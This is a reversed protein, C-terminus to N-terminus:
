QTSSLYNKPFFQQLLFHIPTAIIYTKDKRSGNSDVLFYMPPVPNSHWIAMSEPNSSYGILLSLNNRSISVLINKPYPFYELYDM